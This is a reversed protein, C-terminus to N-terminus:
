LFESFKYLFTFSFMNENVNKHMNEHMQLKAIKTQIKMFNEGFYLVLFNFIIYAMQPLKQENKLQSIASIQGLILGLFIGTILIEMEAVHVGKLLDYRAHLLSPFISVAFAVLLFIPM